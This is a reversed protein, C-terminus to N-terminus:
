RAGSEMCLLRKSGIIHFVLCLFVCWFLFMINVLLLWFRIGFCPSNPIDYCCDFLFIVWDQGACQNHCIQRWLICPSVQCCVVKVVPIILFWCRQGQSYRGLGSFRQWCRLLIDNASASTINLLYQSRLQFNVINKTSVPLPMIRLVWSRSMKWSIKVIISSLAKVANSLVSMIMQSRGIFFSVSIGWRCRWWILCHTSFRMVMESSPLHMEFGVSLKLTIILRIKGCCSGVLSPSFAVGMWATDGICFSTLHVISAFRLMM